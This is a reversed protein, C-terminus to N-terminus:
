DACAAELAALDPKKMTMFAAMAREARARDPGALIDTAGRPVIQWSVGFRDKLWGCAEAEPVASLGAWLRDIEAQDACLAALSFAESFGFGHPGASDMAMLTEGALRFQAHMVTGAADAGAGDHRLVGEIESGPFLAMYDTM